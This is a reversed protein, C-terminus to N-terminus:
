DASPEENKPHHWNRLLVPLLYLDCGITFTPPNQSFVMVMFGLCLVLSTFIIAKGTEKITQYIATEKDLGDRLLLNYKALFHFTDDVAIGFIIAFVISIGAELDINFFGLIGGAVLLPILNPILAIILMRLSKLMLGM